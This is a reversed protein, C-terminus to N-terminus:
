KWQPKSKKVRDSCESSWKRGCLPSKMTLPRPQKWQQRFKESKINVALDGSLPVEVEM